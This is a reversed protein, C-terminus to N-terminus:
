QPQVFVEFEPSDFNDGLLVSLTEHFACGSIWRGEDAPRVHRVEAQVRLIRPSKEPSAHFSIVLDSGLDLQLPSVVCIGWISIDKGVTLISPGLRGNEDLRRLIVPDSYPVRVYRRREDVEGDPETYYAEVQRLPPCVLDNEVPQNPATAM